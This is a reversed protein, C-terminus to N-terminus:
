TSKFKKLMVYGKSCKGSNVLILSHAQSIVFALTNTFNGCLLIFDRKKGMCYTYSLLLSLHGLPQLCRNALGDYMKGHIPPEFGGREALDSLIVAKEQNKDTHFSV